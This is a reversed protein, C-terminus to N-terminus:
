ESDRSVHFRAPEVGLWFAMGLLLREAATLHSEAEIVARARAPDDTIIGDAGQLIKQAITLEDNLTWVYVDQGRAHAQRFLSPTALTVSVALFDVDVETLRGVATAALLGKRYSPRIDGITEVMKRELSMVAIENEMGTREVIAAVREELRQNHGYYKLEIIVKARDKARLLVEELTPVGEGQFEPSFWSGIDLKRVEAFSGDWIKLPSGALKMFDSDHLVVVEGDATEQVDIEVWDTGDEIAREVSSLTNEPALAAAGRHAIVAVPRPSRAGRLLAWGIAASIGAAAMVGILIRKGRLLRTGPEPTESTVFNARSGGGLREYLAVVLAAFLSSSFATLLAAAVVGLVFTAGLAPVLLSLSGQFRPLIAAALARGASAGVLSVTMAAAAWGVLVRAVVLRHSRSRDESVSLAKSPDVNEFLLLPLAYVWGSARRVLLVAMVLLLTGIAVAATWFVPPREKLYYNIDFDTLLLFYALAALALFPACVVLAKVVLRITVALIRHFRRGGWALASVVPARTSGAAGFAIGMLCAQGLGLVAIRGAAALVIIALGLPRLAFYLIDRDALVASGSLSILSRIGLSVLPTLLAFAVLQYFLDTSVLVRWNRRLEDAATTLVERFPSRM